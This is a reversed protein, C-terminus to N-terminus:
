ASKANKIAYWTRYQKRRMQFKRAVELDLRQAIQFLNNSLDVILDFDAHLRQGSKAKILSNASGIRRLFVENVKGRNHTYINRLEIAITLLDREEDTEILSIGTRSNLFNSIDTIGGYTLENIKRDVLFRVIHSRRSFKLVDEIKVLENSKLLEPRKLMCNQIDESIFCLFNDVLQICILESQYNAFGKLKSFIPDKNKEIKELNKQFDKSGGKALARAAILRQEDMRTALHVGFFFFDFITRHRRLFKYYMQTCLDSENPSFLCFLKEKQIKSM